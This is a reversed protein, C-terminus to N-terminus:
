IRPCHPITVLLIKLPASTHSLTVAAPGLRYLSSPDLCLVVRGIAVDATTKVPRSKFDPSDESLTAIKILIFSSPDGSEAGEGRGSGKTSPVLAGSDADNSPSSSLSTDETYFIYKFDIYM